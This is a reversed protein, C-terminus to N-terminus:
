PKIGRFLKPLPAKLGMTRVALARKLGPLTDVLNLAVGRAAALAPLRPTFLRVLGDTFRTTYAVDARRARAYDALWARDGYDTQARCAESLREALVAVDRLGLNFGQGAVPHLTHAANGILVVRPAVWERAHQRILPFRLRPSAALLRGLRDGFSDALRELFGQEDLAQWQEGDARSIVFTYRDDGIPLAAVPGNDTFREFATFPRPRSVRCNSVIAERGYDHCDVGIGCAARVASHTGDAGVLLRCAIREGDQGCALTIVGADADQIFGDFRGARRTVTTADLAEYLTALLATNGTVFGLADVGQEYALIHTLGIRGVRDSVEIETIPQFDGGSLRPWAGLANLARKSGQAITFTRDDARAPPAFPAPDLLCVDLPLHALALALSAGVLGGGCIVVDHRHTSM